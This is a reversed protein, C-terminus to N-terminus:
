RLYLTMNFFVVVVVFVSEAIRLRARHLLSIKRALLHHLRLNSKTNVHSTGAGAGLVKFGVRSQRLNIFGIPQESPSWSCCIEVVTALPHAVDGSLGRLM